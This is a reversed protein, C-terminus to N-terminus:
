FKLGFRSSVIVKHEGRRGWSDTRGLGGAVCVYEGRINMMQVIINDRHLVGLYM